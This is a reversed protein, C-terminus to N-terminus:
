FNLSDDVSVGRGVVALCSFYSVVSLMDLSSVHFPVNRLARPTLAALHAVLCDRADAHQQM